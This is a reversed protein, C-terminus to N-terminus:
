YEVLELEELRIAMTEVSVKFREVLSMFPNSYFLTQQALLRTLERLTKCKKKLAEESEFGLAFASDQDIKFKKTKFIKEFVREIEKKPMLFFTAFKDAEIEIRNRNGSQM